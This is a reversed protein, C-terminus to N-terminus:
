AGRKIKPQGLVVVTGALYDDLARGKSSFASLLFGIGFSGIILLYGITQRFLMRGFSPMRGDLGAIRLGVAMKGLSQGTVLPLLIVNAMTALFGLLWALNNLDSHIINTGDAGFLRALILGIVPFIVFILYDILLAAFRLFFPARLSVPDFGSVTQPMQTRSNALAPSASAM